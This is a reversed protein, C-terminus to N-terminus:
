LLSKEEISIMTQSRVSYVWSSFNMCSFEEVQLFTDFLMNRTRKVYVATVLFYFVEAYYLFNILSLLHLSPIFM